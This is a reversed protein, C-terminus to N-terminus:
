HNLWSMQCKSENTNEDVTQQKIVFGNQESFLIASPNKLYVSLILMAHNDKAANVLQTGIGQHRFPSTVFIGWISHDVLGLFASIQQDNIAVYIEATSLLKKVASYNNMWYYNPIFQHAELNGTLWIAMIRKLQQDSPHTLKTIM